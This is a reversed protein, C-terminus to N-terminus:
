ATKIQNIFEYYMQVSYMLISEYKYIDESSIIKDLNLINDEIQSTYSLLNNKFYDLGKYDIKKVENDLKNLIEKREKMMNQYKITDFSNRNENLYNSEEEYSKLLLNLYDSINKIYSYEDTYELSLVPIELKTIFADNFLNKVTPLQKRMDEENFSIYTQTKSVGDMKLTSSPMKNQELKVEIKNLDENNDFSGVQILYVDIGDVVAVKANNNSSNKSETDKQSQEYLNDSKKADTSNLKFVDFDLDKWFCVKDVVFSMKELLNFNKLVGDVGIKKYSYGVILAMCLVVTIFKRFNFRRRKNLGKYIKKNSM